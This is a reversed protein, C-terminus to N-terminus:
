HSPPNTPTWVRPTPGGPCPHHKSTIKNAQQGMRRAENEPLPQTGQVWSPPPTPSQCGGEVRRRGIGGGGVRHGPALRFVRLITALPVTGTHVALAPPRPHPRRVPLWGRGAIGVVCYMSERLMGFGRLRSDCCPVIRMAPLQWPSLHSWPSSVEFPAHSGASRRDSDAVSTGLRLAPLAVRPYVRPVQTRPRGGASRCSPSGDNVTESRPAETSLRCHSVLTSKFLFPALGAALLATLACVPRFWLCRLGVLLLALPLVVALSSLVCLLAAM